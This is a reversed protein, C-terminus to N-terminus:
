PHLCSPWLTLNIGPLWSVVLALLFATDTISLAALYISSSHHRLRNSLLVICSLVNGLIGVSIIVPMILRIVRLMDQPHDLYPSGGTAATVGWSANLLVTHLAQCWIAGPQLPDSNNACLDYLSQWSLNTPVLPESNNACLSNLDHCIPDATVLLDSRNACLHHCIPDATVLLDSKNACLDHYIPDATVLLDSRNACLGHGETDDEHQTFSIM